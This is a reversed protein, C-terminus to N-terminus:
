GHWIACGWQPIPSLSGFAAVRVRERAQEGFPGVLRDEDDAGMECGWGGAMDEAVSRGEPKRPSPPLSRTRRQVPM